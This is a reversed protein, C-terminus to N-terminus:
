GLRKYVTDTILLDAISYDVARWAQFVPVRHAGTIVQRFHQSPPRPLM